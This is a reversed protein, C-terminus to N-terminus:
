VNTHCDIPGVKRDYAMSWHQHNLGRGHGTAWFATVNTATPSTSNGRTVTSSGPPSGVGNTTFPQNWQPHFSPAPVVRCTSRSRAGRGFGIPTAIGVRMQSGRPPGTPPGPTPPAGPKATPGHHTVTTVNNPTRQRRCELRGLHVNNITLNRCAVGAPGLM